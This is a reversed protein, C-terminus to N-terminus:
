SDPTAERGPRPSVMAVQYVPVPPYSPSAQKSSHVPTEGVQFIWPRVTGPLGGVGYAQGGLRLETGM